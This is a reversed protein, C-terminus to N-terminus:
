GVKGTDEVVVIEELVALEISGGVLIEEVLVGV